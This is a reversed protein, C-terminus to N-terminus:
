RIEYVIEQEQNNRLITLALSEMKDIDKYLKLVEAISTLEINNAKIILDDKKLGLTEMKSGRKVRTVRFGILKNGEKMEEIGIDKWILSPDKSYTAIDSRMVEKVGEQSSEFAPTVYNSPTIEQLRLTYEKNEKSFIVESLAIEKLIYGEYIEDVAVIETDNPSSKKAIIAYGSYRSGYVGKLLFNNMSLASTKTGAVEQTQARKPTLMNAFSVRQYSPQYSTKTDLEVGESPLYWWLALSILKAFLLLLLLRGLVMMFDTKSLKQM